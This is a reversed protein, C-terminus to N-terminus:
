YINDIIVITYHSELLALILSPPARTGSVSSDKEPFVEFILRPGGGCKRTGALSWVQRELVSRGACVRACVCACLQWRAPAQYWSVCTRAADWSFGRQLEGLTAGGAERLFPVAM